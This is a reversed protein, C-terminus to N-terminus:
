CEVGSLALLTRGSRPGVPGDRAARGRAQDAGAARARRRSDHAHAAIVVVVDLLRPRRAAADAAACRRGCRARRRRPPRARRRRRADGGARRREDRGRGGARERVSARRRAAATAAGAAAAYAVMGSYRSPRVVSGPPRRTGSATPVSAVNRAPCARRRGPPSRRECADHGPPRRGPVARGSRPAADTAPRCRAQSAAPVTGPAPPGYSSMARAASSSRCASAREGVAGGHRAPRVFHRYTHGRSADNTATARARVPCTSSARSIRPKRSRTWDGSPENWARYRGSPEPGGSSRPTCVSPVPQASHAAPSTSASIVSGASRAARRRAAGARQDCRDARCAIASTPGRRGAARTARSSPPARPRASAPCPRGAPRRAQLLGRTTRSARRRRRAPAAPTRRRSGSWPRRSGRTRRWRTRATRRRRARPRRWRREQQRREQVLATGPTSSPTAPTPSTSPAARSRARARAGPPAVVADRPRRLGREVRPHGGLGAVGLEGVPPEREEVRWRVGDPDSGSFTSASPEGAATAGSPQLAAHTSSARESAGDVASAGSM